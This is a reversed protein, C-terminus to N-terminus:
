FFMPFKTKVNYFLKLTKEIAFDTLSIKSFDKKIIWLFVVLSESKNTVADGILFCQLSQGTKLSIDWLFLM